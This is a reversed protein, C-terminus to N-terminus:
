YPTVRSWLRVPVRPGFLFNAVTTDLHINHINGNHVAGIDAVGGIWKNFNYVYQGSGGNASFAPVNTASNARVYTYGLFTEMQPVDQAAATLAFLVVVGIVTISKKM